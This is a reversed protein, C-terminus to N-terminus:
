RRRGEKVHEFTIMFKTGGTRDLKINGKLQQVFMNVLQLGLTKTNRFDVEKPFGVGTDGVILRYMNDDLRFNIIIKGKRGAPFAHKLSNSVLENIIFSCLLIKDIDMFIEQINIKPTIADPDIRYSCFLNTTLRQICEGFNIEILNDSQYLQEHLTAMLKIRNQSEKFMGIVQKNKIHESQLDLLSSVLQLNNKVRHHIERLLLEKEKLSKKVETLDRAVLVIGELNRNNDYMVSASVSMPITKGAKNLFEIEIDKLRDNTLLGDFFNSEFFKKGDRKEINSLKIIHTLPSNLLEKRNYGLLKITSKNVNVINENGDVVILSDIMTDVVADATEATTLKMLKYKILSYATMFSFLALSISTMPFLSINFLPPILNTGLSLAFILLLGMLMFKIQKKEVTSITKEYYKHSLTYLACFGCFLFWFVVFDTSGSLIVRYGWESIQVDQISILMNFIISIIIGAMYLAILSYKYRTFINKNNPYKRPFVSAFHVVVCSVIPFIGYGIRGAILALEKTESSRVIFESIAFIASFIVLVTFVRNTIKKPNSSYVYIGVLINLIASSLAICLAPNMCIM